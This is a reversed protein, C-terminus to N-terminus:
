GRGLTRKMVTAGHEMMGRVPAEAEGPLFDALWVLRCTDAGEPVVEFSAHHHSMLENPRVSYALRMAEEDLDVILEQAVFGTEFTVTRLNGDLETGTVFGPVFRTHIAGVDRVADWVHAASAAIPIELKVSAM